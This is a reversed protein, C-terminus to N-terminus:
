LRAGYGRAMMVAAIVMCVVLVAQLLSITGIRQAVAPAVFEEASKGRGREARWRSLTIRPLIELALIIVLFGMKAYFIHNALYYGTAKETGAFLRWLGTVLWLGFALGWSGDDRFARSLSDNTPPEQLARGRKVVASFGIALALLHLV